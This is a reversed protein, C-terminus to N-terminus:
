DHSADIVAPSHEARDGPGERRAVDLWEERRRKAEEALLLLGHAVVAATTATENIRLATGAFLGVHYAALSTLTQEVDSM